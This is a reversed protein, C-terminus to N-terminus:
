YKAASVSAVARGTEFLSLLTDKLGAVPRNRDERMQAVMVDDAGAQLPMEYKRQVAVPIKALLEQTPNELEQMDLERKGHIRLQEMDIAQSQREVVALRRQLASQERQLQSEQMLMDAKAFQLHIHALCLAGVVAFPYCARVLTMYSLGNEAKRGDTCETIKPLPARRTM